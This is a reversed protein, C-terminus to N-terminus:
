SLNSCKDVLVIHLKGGAGTLCGVYAGIAVTKETDNIIPYVDTSLDSYTTGDFKQIKGRGNAGPTAGTMPNCATTVHLNVLGFGSRPGVADLPVNRPQGEVFRVANVIRQCSREDFEPM